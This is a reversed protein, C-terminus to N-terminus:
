EGMANKLKALALNYDFEAKVKNFQAEKLSVQADLLEWLAAAGLNYKAQVLDMDESAAAETEETVSLTEEALRIGLYADKIDKVVNNKRSVDTFRANNLSAKAYSMSAKRSFRDFINWGIGIRLSAAHDLPGFKIIEDFTNKSWGYSFSLTAYPLYQGFASRVSYKSALISANSALLKPHSKAAKTLIADLESIEEQHLELDAIQFSEDPHLGIFTALQFLAVKHIKDARVLTLQDNGYQVKQKLVESLSASGLDYKEQFLKLLEESREVADRAVELDRRAKLALYYQGKVLYELDSSAWLYDYNAIDKAARSNLYNWINSLGNFLVYGMSLGASYSKFTSGPLTVDVINGDGLDSQRASPGYDTKNYSGSVSLSPLFQGAQNWVTADATKITNRFRNLGPDSKRALEICEDLTYEKAWSTGGIVILLVIILSVIRKM